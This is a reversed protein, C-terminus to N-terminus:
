VKFSTINKQQLHTSIAEADELHLNSDGDDAVWTIKNKWAGGNLNRQYNIIKEVVTDAEATNRVPLRGTAIAM